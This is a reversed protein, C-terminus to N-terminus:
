TIRTGCNPCFKDYSTETGVVSRCQNNPCNKEEADGGGLVAKFPNLHLVELILVIWLIGSVVYRSMSYERELLLLSGSSFIYICNTIIWWPQDKYFRRISSYAAVIDTSKRRAEKLQEEIDLGTLAIWITSLEITLIAVVYTTIQSSTEPVAVWPLCAWLFYTALGVILGYSAFKTPRSRARFYNADDFGIKLRFAALFLFYPLFSWEAIEKRHLFLAGLYSLATAWGVGLAFRELSTNRM